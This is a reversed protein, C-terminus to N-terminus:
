AHRCTRPRSTHDQVGSPGEDRYSQLWKYATRVSVGAASAAEAARLGQQMRQVLLARTRPMLCANKHLNM